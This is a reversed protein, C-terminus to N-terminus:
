TAPAPPNKQNKFMRVLGGFLEGLDAEQMSLEFIKTIFLVQLAFPMTAAVPAAEREGAGCAIIDAALAPAKM